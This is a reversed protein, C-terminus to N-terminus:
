KIDEYHNKDTLAQLYTKKYKNYTTLENRIQHALAEKKSPNTENLYKNKLEEQKFVSQGMIKKAKNLKKCAATMKTKLTKNEKTQTKIAEKPTKTTHRPQIFVNANKGINDLSIIHPNYLCLLKDGKQTGYPTVETQEFEKKTTMEGELFGFQIKNNYKYYLKTQKM